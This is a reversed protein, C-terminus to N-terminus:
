AGRACSVLWGYAPVFSQHQTKLEEHRREEEEAREEEWERTEEYRDRAEQRSERRFEAAEQCQGMGPFNRDHRFCHTM